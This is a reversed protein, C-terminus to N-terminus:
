ISKTTRRVRSAAHLERLVPWDGHTWLFVDLLKNLIASEVLSRAAVESRFSREIPLSPWRVIGYENKVSLIVRILDNLNETEM